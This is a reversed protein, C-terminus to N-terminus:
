CYKRNSMSCTLRCHDQGVPYKLCRSKTNRKAFWACNKRIVRTGKTVIVFRGVDDYCPGFTKLETIMEEVLDENGVSVDIAESIDATLNYLSVDGTGYNRILKMENKRISEHLLDKNGYTWAGLWERTGKTEDYVNDLFSISDMATSESIDIGAIDCLTAYVDNLGILKNRKEGQPISGNDWRITLPIRTGGEYIEGKIGRLPGNSYHGFDASNAHKKGLGGNDSTFIVVTNNMLNRDELAQILSGVVKDMEFLVDMHGNPYEGAVPSGDIYNFPPSHPVHVAGLAVYAFFPNSQNNSLHNDLFDVTENVLIMNYASSDWDTDGEGSTKIESEGQSMLFRGKDWFIIEDLGSILKNDRFFTYPPNQIGGTTIFSTNFGIDVPGEELPSTWDHNESGLINKKNAFFKKPRYGEVTPM